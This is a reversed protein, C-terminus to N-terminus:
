TKLGRFSRKELAYKKLLKEKINLLRLIVTLFFMFFIIKIIKKPQM